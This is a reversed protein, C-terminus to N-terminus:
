PNRLVTRWKHGEAFLHRTLVACSARMCARVCRTAPPALPIKPEQAAAAPPKEPGPQGRKTDEQMHLLARGNIQTKVHMVRNQTNRYAYSHVRKVRNEVQVGRSRTHEQVHLLARGNSQTKAWM